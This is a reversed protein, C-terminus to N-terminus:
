DNLVGTEVQVNLRWKLEELMKEMSNIAYSTAPPDFALKVSYHLYQIVANLKVSDIFSNWKSEIGTIVFGEEPGVGLQHLTMFSSNIHAMIEFDFVTLSPDIGLMKKITELISENEM